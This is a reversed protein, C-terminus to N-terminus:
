SENFNPQPLTSNAARETLVLKRQELEGLRNEPASIARGNTAQVIRDVLKETQAMETKIAAANEKAQSVKMSRMACRCAM